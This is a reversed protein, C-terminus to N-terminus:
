RCHVYITYVVDHSMLCMIVDHSMLCMIVDGIFVTVYIKITEVYM